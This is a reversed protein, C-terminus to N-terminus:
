VICKPFIQTEQFSKTELNKYVIKSPKSIFDSHFFISSYNNQTCKKQAGMGKLRHCFVDLDPVSWMIITICIVFNLTWLLFNNINFVNVM